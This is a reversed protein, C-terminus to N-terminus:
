PTPFPGATKVCTNLVSFTEVASARPGLDDETIQITFEGTLECTNAPLRVTQSGRPGVFFPPLTANGIIATLKGSLPACGGSAGWTATVNNATENVDLLFTVVVPSFTCLPQPAFLTKGEFINDDLLCNVRQLEAVSTGTARAITSLTDDAIIRYLQWGPPPTPSCPTVSPTVTPTPTLTIVPIPTITPTIIPAPLPLADTCRLKSSEDSVQIWGRENTEVVIAERWNADTSLGLPQLRMGDLLTNFAGPADTSPQARMLLFPAIIECEAPPEQCSTTQNLVLQFSGATDNRYSRVVVTYEGESPLGQNCIESDFDQIGVDNNFKVLRSDPGRLDIWPDLRDGEEEPFTQPDNVDIGDVQISVVDGQSGRFKYLCEHGPFHITGVIPVGYNIAGGCPQLDPLPDSNIDRIRGLGEESMLWQVLESFVAETSLPQSISIPENELLPVEVKQGEPIAMEMGLADSRVMVSGEANAIEMMNEFPLHIFVTSGLEIDIGNITISGSQGDESQIVMGSPTNDCIEGDGQYILLFDDNDQPETQVDGFVIARLPDTEGEIEIHLIGAGFDLGTTMSEIAKIELRDRPMDFRETAPLSELAEMGYCAWNKNLERCNEITADFQEIVDGCQQEQGLVPQPGGVNSILLLSLSLFLFIRVARVNCQQMVVLPKKKM